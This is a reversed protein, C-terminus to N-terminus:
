GIRGRLRRVVRRAVGRPGERRVVRAVRAPLSGYVLRPDVRAVLAREVRSRMRLPMAHTRDPLSALDAAPQPRECYRVLPQAAVEWTMRAGRARARASQARREEGDDMLREIAAAAATEDEPPITLGLGEREVLDAQSDGETCLVPLGAWLYDLIRTRYSFRTELHDFHTSVGLDAELLYDARRAYPVWTENFFVFRDLTGTEAALRRARDVMAMKPVGESPHATSMFFLRVDPRRAAVAAVARILTLPDFWNYIGGGWLMLFDGPGIGPVVGRIAPAQRQPPEGPLGFPVVDILSRLSPDAAYTMPNVRNLVSLAGIWMDRQRESACMFFDGVRLQETITFLVDPWEVGATGVPDVAQSAIHEFHFPDYFDVVIRAGTELLFVNRELVWGQVVVVDHGPALRRLAQGGDWTAVRFPLADIDTSGPVALTVEHGARHLQRALEFNRIGPGAMARRVYDHSIILVRSM